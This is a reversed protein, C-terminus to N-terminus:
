STTQNKKTPKQSIQYEGYLYSAFGWLCIALAMGKGAHFVEQLFIVAFAQQVPVLLSSV